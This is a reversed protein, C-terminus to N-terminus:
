PASDKYSVKTGVAPKRKRRSLSAGHAAARFSRHSLRASSIVPKAGGGGPAVVKITVTTTGTCDQADTATVSFTFTGAQTPTGSLTAGSFGLGPPLQGSANLTYPASGGSGAFAASYPDGATAAPSSSPAVSIGHCGAVWNLSFTGNFQPAPGGGVIDTGVRLWDPELGANRIWAQLDTEGIPFPTGPSVIPKPASLWYFNGSSLAVQPVFFYHGAPLSLPPDFTGNFIADE